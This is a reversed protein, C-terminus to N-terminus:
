WYRLDFGLTNQEGTVKDHLTLQLYETTSDTLDLQIAQSKITRDSSQVCKNVASNDYTIKIFAIQGPVITLDVFLRCNNVSQKPKFEVQQQNCIVTTDQDLWLNDM